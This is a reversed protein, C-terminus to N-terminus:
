ALRAILALGTLMVCKTLRAGQTRLHDMATKVKLFLDPKSSFYRSGTPAGGRNTPPLTAYWWLQSPEGEDDSVDILVDLHPPKEQLRLETNEITQFEVWQRFTWPDFQSPVVLDANGDPHKLQVPNSASRVTLAENRYTIVQLLIDTMLELQAEGESIGM